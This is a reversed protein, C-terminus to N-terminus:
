IKAMLYDNMKSVVLICIIFVIIYAFTTWINAGFAVMILVVPAWLCISYIVGFRFSSLRNKTNFESYRYIIPLLAGTIIFCGYFSISFSVIKTDSVKMANFIYLPYYLYGLIQTFIFVLLPFIVASILATKTLASKDCKKKEYYSFDRYLFGLLFGDIIYSLTDCTVLSLSFATEAIPGDAGLLGLVQPIYDSVWIILIFVFARLRQSKIPLKQGMLVYAIAYLTKMIVGIIAISILFTLEPPAPENLVYISNLIQLPTSLIASLVAFIVAKVLNIKLIQSRM